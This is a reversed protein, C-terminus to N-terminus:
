KDPHLMKFLTSLGEIRKIKVENGIKLDINKSEVAIKPGIGDLNVRLDHRKHLGYIGKKVHYGHFVIKDLGDFGTIQLDANVSLKSIELTDNYFQKLDLARIRYPEFKGTLKKITNVFEEGKADDHVDTFILGKEPVWYVSDRAIAPIEAKETNRRFNKPLRALLFVKPNSHLELIILAYLSYKTKLQTRLLKLNEKQPKVLYFPMWKSFFLSLEALKWIKEFDGRNWDGNYRYHLHDFLQKGTVTM